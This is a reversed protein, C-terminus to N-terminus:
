KVKFNVGKVKSVLLFLILCLIGLRFQMVFSTNCMNRAKNTLFPIKAQKVLKAYNVKSNSSKGKFIDQIMFIICSIIQGTLILHVYPIVNTGLKKQQFIM